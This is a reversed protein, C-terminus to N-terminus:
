PYFGESCLFLPQTRAMTAILPDVLDSLWVVDAALVIDFSEEFLPSQQMTWDLAEVAPATFPFPSNCRVCAELSSIVEPRDTM